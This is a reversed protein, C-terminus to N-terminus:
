VSFDLNIPEGAEWTSTVGTDSGDVRFSVTAGTYSKDTEGVTLVYAGDSTTTEDVKEGAIWASVVIGDPATEGDVLVDGYFWCVPPAASTTSTPTPTPTPVPTPTPTPTPTPIATPTATPTATPIATPTATPTGEEGCGAAGIVLAMVLLLILVIALKRM